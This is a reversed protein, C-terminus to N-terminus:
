SDSHVFIYQIFSLTSTCTSNMLEHLTSGTNQPQLVQFLLAACGCFLAIVRYWACVSAHVVGGCNRKKCKV